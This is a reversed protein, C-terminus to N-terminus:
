WVNDFRDLVAQSSEIDKQVKKRKYFIPCDRNTCLVDQHLSGQCRQCQTWLEAFSSQQEKLEFLKRLHIDMRKGKAECNDCLAGKEISVKCSLCQLKVKVFSGLGRSQNVKPVYIVSTHKGVFLSEPNPIIPEFIRMLPNKIQKELYYNFDIPLDNELVYIPDEANEYNKSGKAGTVMVYAIRDGIAPGHGGERQQLKQALEVHAAKTKYTNDSKKTEKTQSGQKQLKKDSKDKGKTKKDAEEEGGSGEIKKSISRTIVLFSLDIKNQLLDSITTKVHDIAGNLDRDILIKELVTNVLNRVLLCNDRRVSELGKRDLKDWNDEKSWYLGAYRKKALLLYPYYVKEFELKIPRIFQETIYQSCERGLKMAEAVTKVGFKVMVSDTDGYIVKADAPYGNSTNFRTEVLEKTKFIMNRGYATVSSAIELCPLQGVQAGTFGYVSNASIKLALQRGDLVAAKFPDTEKKLDEKAKKRAALLEELIMPLLGRRIEPKVFYEGNPTKTYQDEKLTKEAVAKRVFTTYCLNHAMMISPYLSAFDLTAIPDQYFGTIPDLVDAGEYKGDSKGHREVPIIMDHKMAKRYLQSAVKIQQGKVFLFRIPVGTVRAMETYNYLSMLKDMLKLPLLADKLCYVAIRRRTDANGNQLDYIISHHVDEKQEKLFLYSVNNLSYSSLKHEVHMIMHMDLQIRGDINIDKTERMGMAKSQFLANKVKSVANLIRGFKGFGSINLAQARNIIYPLDFNIINYGTIIDPDCAVLFEQWDKFMEVETRHSRVEAGVINSCTGLTFITNAFHTNETHIKCVNAIQIVPHKEPKPFGHEATCEIDFSLIRLPAMKLYDGESPLAIIKDFKTDIEIQCNSTRENVPRIKYDGPQIRLWSMGQLGIDIMFRLAYPMNSEYTIAPFEIGDVTVGKEFLDLLTLRSLGQRVESLPLMNLNDQLSKSILFDPM